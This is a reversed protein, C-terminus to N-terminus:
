HHLRQGLEMLEVRQEPTLVDAVDAIAQVVRQSTTDADLIASARLQELAVRDVYPQTLIERMAEHTNGHEAMVTQADAIVGQVITTIQDQQADTADIRGLIMEIAFEAREVAFDADFAGHGASRHGGFQAFAGVSVALVAGAVGGLVIGSLFGHRTRRGPGQRNEGTSVSPNEQKSM